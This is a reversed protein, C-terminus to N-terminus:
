GAWVGLCNVLSTVLWRSFQQGVPVRCVVSHRLHSLVMFVPWASGSLVYLGGDRSDGQTDAAGRVARVCVGGAVSLWGADEYVQVCMGGVCVHWVGRVARVARVSVCPPAVCVPRAGGATRLVWTSRWAVTTRYYDDLWLTCLVVPWASRSAPSSFGCYSPDPHTIANIFM